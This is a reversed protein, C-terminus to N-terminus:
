SSENHQRRMQHSPAVQVGCLASQVLGVLLVRTVVVVVMTEVAVRLVMLAVRGAAAVPALIASTFAVRVMVVKVMYAWVAARCLVVEAERQVAVELVAMPLYATLALVGTVLTVALVVVVQSCEVMVELHEETVEAMGWTRDVPMLKVRMDAFM